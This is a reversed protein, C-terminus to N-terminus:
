ESPPNRQEIAGQADGDAVREEPPAMRQCAPCVGIFELRHGVIDYGRVGQANNEPVSFGIPGLDDVRGCQNCRLHYHTEMDGDFRYQTGSSEIRQIEGSESLLDLNRYVTGLSINPLRKRVMEHVDDATPHSKAKRVEELIVRRQETMRRKMQPSM